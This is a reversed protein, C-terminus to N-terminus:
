LTFICNHDHGAKPNYGLIYEGGGGNAWGFKSILSPITIDHTKGCSKLNGEAPTKGRLFVEPFYHASM